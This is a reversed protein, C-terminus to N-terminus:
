SSESILPFRTETERHTQFTNVAEEVLHSLVEVSRGAYTPHLEAHRVGVVYVRARRQPVGFLKSDCCIQFVLYEKELLMLAKDLAPRSYIDHISIANELVFSRPLM